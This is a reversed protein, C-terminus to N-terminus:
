CRLRATPCCPAISKPTRMCSRCCRMSHLSLVMKSLIQSCPKQGNTDKKLVADRLDGGSSPAHDSDLQHLVEATIGGFEGIRKTNRYLVKLVPLPALKTPMMQSMRWAPGLAMFTHFGVYDEGGFTRANALAAACVLDKLSTDTALLKVLRAQLQDISSEQLLDALAQYKGFHLRKKASMLM